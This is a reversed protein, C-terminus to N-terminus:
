RVVGTIAFREVGALHGGTSAAITLVGHAPGRLPATASWRQDQGGAPVCCFEGAPAGSSLQRVQVRISEDVGTVRGGVAVPGAARAGYPPTSLSLTTDDTGVVEWPALGGSGYRVLHIVAATGIRGADTRFGVAVRAHEGSITGAAVQNIGSYGLYGQTFALATQRASLHWPQHGGSRYSTQWARVGQGNAFPWLPLYHGPLRPLAASAAQAPAPPVPAPRAPAKGSPTSTPSPAASSAAPAQEGAQGATRTERVCSSVALAVGFLILLITLFARALHPRASTKM